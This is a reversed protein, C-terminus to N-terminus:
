KLKDMAARRAIEMAEPIKSPDKGGAQAMQPRGGGGGGMAKAVDRIWDGAKLGRAILDDSVAAMITVKQAEVDGTALLIAHAPAKARLSDMTSRLQDDTVGPLEAVILKAGAGVDAADNILKSAMAAPDIKTVAAGAGSALKKKLTTIEDRLAAIRKPADDISANLSHQIDRLLGDMKQVHEVAARGTVATLRRVGKSVSEESVVKFFGAQGTHKLHTGGCFEISMDATAERRPDETGIAIVRVPDPYKEGFVARVGPLQKAQSLLMTTASVPVDAYIRENVLREVQLLEVPTVAKDHSFDFRLKEADVLSGKQEVHEGLVSRLALNMLHTATHNRMVDVRRADVSTMAWQKPEVHGEVVKGWHLVHEGRRETSTVMFRGAPTSITGIDGAQGGQEAYFTTMDLLLGAEDGSNLMGATYSGDQKVWGLVTARTSLGDFKLTDDTKPFPTLDIAVQAHKKREKGSEIRANNMCGEFGEIDVGFGREKALVQTLDIPFGYTDHLKFADAADIRPVLGTVARIENGSFSLAPVDLRVANVDGKLHIIFRSEDYLPVIGARLNESLQNEYGEM